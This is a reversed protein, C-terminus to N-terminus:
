LPPLGMAVRIKNDQAKNIDETALPKGSSISSQSAMANAVASKKILDNGQTRNAGGTEMDGNALASATKDAMESDFGSSLLNSKYNSITAQKEYEALKSEMEAQREALEVAQREEESLKERLKRKNDAAESNAKSLLAKLKAIEKDKSDDVVTENPTTNEEDAKITVEKNENEAM